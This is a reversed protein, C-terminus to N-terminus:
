IIYINIYMYFILAIFINEELKKKKAIDNCPFEVSVSQSLFFQNESATVHFNIKQFRCWNM